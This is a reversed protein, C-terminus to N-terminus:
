LDKRCTRCGATKKYDNIMITIAERIVESRNKKLEQLIKDTEYLFEKPVRIGPKTVPM